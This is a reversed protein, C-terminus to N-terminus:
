SIDKVWIVQSSVYSVMEGEELPLDWAKAKYYTPKM